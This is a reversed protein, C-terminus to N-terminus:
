ALPLRVEFRSGEGLVSEVRVAGGHAEVLRRVIALGLGAGGGHRERAPSVRHFRDFVRDLHEPPIGAGSDTVVLVVDDGDVAAAVTVRGGAPTHRIANDLLNRLIQQVRVPDLMAVPGDPAVDVAVAVDRENAPVRVAGVAREVLAGIAIRERRLGIAGSEWQALEQLDTTLRTLLGVEEQLSPLAARIDVILGDEVAELQAQLNTLPTRLEHAVDSILSRRHQEHEEVTAAMANFCRALSGIEGGARVEARRGLKGAAIAEAADRLEEIPRLLSDAFVLALVLALVTGLILLWLVQEGIATDIAAGAAPDGTPTPELVVLTIQPLGDPAAIAIEPAGRVVLEGRRATRGERRAFTIALAGDAARDVREIALSRSHSALLKGNRDLLLLDREAVAGLSALEAAMDAAAAGSRLHGEVEHGLRDVLEREAQDVRGAFELTSTRVSLWGVAIMLPVAVAMVTAVIRLRLGHM